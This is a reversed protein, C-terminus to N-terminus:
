QRGYLEEFDIAGSPHQELAQHEAERLYQSYDIEQKAKEEQERRLKEIHM